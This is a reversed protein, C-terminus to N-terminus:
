RGPTAALHKESAGSVLKSIYNIRGRESPQYLADLIAKRSQKDLGRLADNIIKHAEALREHPFPATALGRVIAELKKRLKNDREFLEILRKEVEKEAQQQDRIDTLTKLIAIVPATLGALLLIWLIEM